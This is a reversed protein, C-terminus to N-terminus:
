YSRHEFKAELPRPAGPKRIRVTVLYSSKARMRFYNGYSPANNIVMPELTKSVGSGGPEQLSIDVKADGIPAKTAADVLSVNVHHYGSGSPVGGHMSREVSGEPFARMTEAPAFGLHVDIGDVSKYLAAPPAARAPADKKAATGPNILYIVASRVEADTLDARAGRPPMGGHGHIAIRVANDLGDKLRPTWAERDGIRPAGGVGKQHCKACQEKVIQPGTREAALDELSAPEAWRGGSRNVMHVIARGIELDTLDPSGGHAPMARIGKLASQTLSSLGQAIRNSWAKKDGIKPAGQAGKAHCSACTAAVVEKGSREGAQAAGALQPAMSAAMALLSALLLKHSL